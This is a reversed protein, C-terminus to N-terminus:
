GQSIQILGRSRLELAQYPNRPSICTLGYLELTIVQKDGERTTQFIGLSVNLFHLALGQMELLFWKAEKSARGDDRRVKSQSMVTVLYYCTGIVPLLGHTQAHRLLGM